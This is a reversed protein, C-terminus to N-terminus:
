ELLPDEIKTDELSWDSNPTERIVTTSSYMGADMLHQKSYGHKIICHQKNFHLESLSM